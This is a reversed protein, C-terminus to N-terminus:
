RRQLADRIERLLVVDEPPTAPAEEQKKEEFKAKATNIIKVVVFIALAILLFDVVSQIFPGYNVIPYNQLAMVPKGDEMVMTGDPNLKPALLPMKWSLDTFNVGFRATLLNLPPMLVNSVLSGIIKGFAGGIVVGVALDIVNGRMAFERFEKVIGM